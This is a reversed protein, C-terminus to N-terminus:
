KAATHLLTSSRSSKTLTLTVFQYLHAHRDPSSSQLREVTMDRHRRVGAHDVNSNLIISCLHCPYRVKEIYRVGIQIGAEDQFHSQDAFDANDDDLCTLCNVVINRYRDGMRSPLQNRALLLLSSKLDAPGQPDTLLGLVNARIPKEEADYEVFSKWLGVELLCVGLSYIDHQMVYEEEPHLGQRDPHRYLNTEWKADGLLGTAGDEARFHGFGTLFVSELNVSQGDMRFGIITEPRINKHVFGLSHIYSVARALQKALNMRETLSHETAFMLMQRLSRPLQSNEAQQPFRLIFSFGSEERKIFGKCQLMGLRPSDVFHLREALDRVNKALTKARSKSIDGPGLNMADVIFRRNSSSRDYVVATSFKIAHLDMGELQSAPLFVSVGSSKADRVLRRLTTMDRLASKSQPVVQNQDHRDLVADVSPATMKLMILKWTPDFRAQWREMEDIASDLHQKVFIYKGKKVTFIQEGRTSTGRDILRELRSTVDKLKAIFINLLRAQVAKFDEDLNSDLQQILQLQENTRFVSSEILAVRHDIETDAKRFARCLDM